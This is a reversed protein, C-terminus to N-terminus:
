TFVCAFIIATIFLLTVAAIGLRGQNGIRVNPKEPLSTPL